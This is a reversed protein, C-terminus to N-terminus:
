FRRWIVITGCRNLSEMPNAFQPPAQNNSRYIEVALVDEIRLNPIPLLVGDVYIITCDHLYPKLLSYLDAPNRKAIAASDLIHRRPILAQPDHQRAEHARDNGKCGM